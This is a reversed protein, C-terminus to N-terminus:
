HSDPTMELTTSDSSKKLIEVGYWLNNLNLFDVGVGEKQFGSESERSWCNQFSVGVGASFM